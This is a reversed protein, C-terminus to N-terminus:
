IFCLFPARAEFATSKSINERDLPHINKNFSQLM